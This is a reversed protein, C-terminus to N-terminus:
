DDTEQVHALHASMCDDLDNQIEEIARERHMSVTCTVGPVYTTQEYDGFLVIAALLVVGACCGALIGERM